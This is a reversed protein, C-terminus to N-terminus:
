KVIIKVTDASTLKLDFATLKIVYTGTRTFKVTTTLATPTGFTVAAPGSALSWTLRLIKDPLGDDTAKGVLKAGATRLVTQDLGANM